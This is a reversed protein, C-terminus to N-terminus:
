LVIDLSEIFSAILQRANPIEVDNPQKVKKTCIDVCKTLVM